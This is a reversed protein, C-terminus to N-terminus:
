HLFIRRLSFTFIGFEAERHKAEYTPIKENEKDSRNRIISGHVIVLRNGEVKPHVLVGLTSNTQNDKSAIRSM